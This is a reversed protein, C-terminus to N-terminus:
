CHSFFQILVYQLPRTQYSVLFAVFMIGPVWPQLREYRSLWDGILIVWFVFCFPFYTVITVRHEQLKMGIISLSEGVIKLHAAVDVPEM